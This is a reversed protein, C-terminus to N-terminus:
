SNLSIFFYKICIIQNHPVPFSHSNNQKIPLLLNTLRSTSPTSPSARTSSMLSTVTVIPRTLSSKLAATPSSFATLALSQRVMAPRLTVTTTTLPIMRSPTRTVTRSLLSFFFLVFCIIIFINFYM